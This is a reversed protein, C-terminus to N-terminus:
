ACKPEGVYRLVKKFRKQFLLGVCQVNVGCQEAIAGLTGGETLAANIAAKQEASLTALLERNRQAMTKVPKGLVVFFREDKSMLACHIATLIGTKEFQKKLLLVAEKRSLVKAKKSM